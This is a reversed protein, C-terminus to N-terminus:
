VTEMSCSSAPLAPSPQSAPQDQHAESVDESDTILMAVSADEMSASETTTSSAMTAFARVTETPQNRATHATTPLSADPLLPMSLTALLANPVTTSLVQVNLVTPTAPSAPEMSPLSDVRAASLVPETQYSEQLAPASVMSPIHELLAHPKVNVRSSTSVASALLALEPEMVLLAPILAIQAFEVVLLSPLM